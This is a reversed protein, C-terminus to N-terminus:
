DGALFWVFQWNNRDKLRFGARYGYYPTDPDVAAAPCVYYLTVDYETIACDGSLVSALENLLKPRDKYWEIAEDRSRNGGFSYRFDLVMLGHLSEFDRHDAATSVQDVLSVLGTDPQETAQPQTAFILASTLITAFTKM